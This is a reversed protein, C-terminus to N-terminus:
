VSRGCLTSDDAISSTGGGHKSASVLSAGGQLIRLLIEYHTSKAALYCWMFYYTGVSCQNRFALDSFNGREIIHWKYKLSQFNTILVTTAIM